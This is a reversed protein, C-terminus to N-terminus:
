YKMIMGAIDKIVHEALIEQIAASRSKKDATSLITAQLWPSLKRWYNSLDDSLTNFVAGADILMTIMKENGYVIAYELLSLGQVRMNVDAVHTLLYKFCTFNNHSITHYIPPINFIEKDDGHKEIIELMLDSDHQDMALYFQLRIARKVELDDYYKEPVNPHQLQMHAREIEEVQRFLEFTQKERAITKQALCENHSRLQEIETKHADYAKCGAAIAKKYAATQASDLTDVTSGLAVLKILIATINWNKNFRSQLFWHEAYNSATLGRMDKKDVAAGNRVLKEIMESSAHVALMLPTTGDKDGANVDAGCSIFSEVAELDNRFIAIRLSKNLAEQEEADLQIESAAYKEEREKQEASVRKMEYPAVAPIVANINQVTTTKQSVAQARLSLSMPLTTIPISAILTCLLLKNM